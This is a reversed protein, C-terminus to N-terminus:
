KEYEKIYFEFVRLFTKVVHKQEKASLSPYIPLSVIGQFAKNTIDCYRDEPSRWDCIPIDAMVGQERLLSILQQANGRKLYIPYRYWVRNASHSPLNIHERLWAVSCFEDQYRNALENRRQIMGPLRKLQVLGIAASIDTMKDNLRTADPLQDAYDRWRRVHEAVELSDTLVAGGEGVGLLKTAYFSQIVVKSIPKEPTKGDEALRFGHAWDEICDVQLNLLDDTHSPQGFTNVAIVAKLNHTSVEKKKLDINWIADQISGVIPVAQNALVANPLAVCSYGPVLVRDGKGIGIASLSLRLAALGSGVCVAYKVQAWDQLHREFEHVKASGAWRGSRIVEAVAANEEVGHTLRNHPVVIPRALVFSFMGDHEGKRRTFGCREFVGISRANTKLIDARIIKLDRWHLFALNCAQELAASGFGSGIHESLLFISIVKERSNVADFRVQGIPLMERQIIWIKSDQSALKSAFWREHEAKSVERNLAGLAVIEPKNRWSLLLDSDDADVARLSIM